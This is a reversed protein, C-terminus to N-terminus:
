GYVQGQIEVQKVSVPPFRPISAPIRSPVEAAYFRQSRHDFPRIATALEERMSEETRHGYSYESIISGIVGAAGRAKADEDDAIEDMFPWLWNELAALSSSPGNLYASVNGYIESQHESIM